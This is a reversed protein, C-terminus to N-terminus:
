TAPAAAPRAAVAPCRHCQLGTAVCTRVDCTVTAGQLLLVVRGLKQSERGKILVVDGPALEARLTAAVEQVTRHSSFRDRPLGAASAGSRVDDRHAGLYVIREAARAAQRGLDRHVAHQGPGPETIDGLVVLRRRAPLGVLTAFAVAITETSSKCDDRLVTVDGGLALPQLRADPPDVAALRALADTIPVALERAVALAALAARAAPEGILRLRAEGSAGPMSFTMSTGDLGSRVATARLENGDGLGVRVVRARLGAAVHTVQEDDGNVVALGGAPLARLMVAKEERIAERSGLAERHDSGVGTFVVISPRLVAAYRRMQGPRSIGVELVLPRGAPARLLRLALHAWFNRNSPDRLPEGVAAAVARTTTTKGFSGVVAVVPTSLLITRRRLTALLALPPWALWAFAARAQHGLIARRVAPPADKTWPRWRV